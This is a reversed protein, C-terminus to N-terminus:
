PNLSTATANLNMSKLTKAPSADSKDITTKRKLSNGALNLKPPGKDKDYEVTYPDTLADHGTLRYTQTTRLM